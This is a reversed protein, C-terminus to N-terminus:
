PKRNGGRSIKDSKPTTEKPRLAVASLKRQAASAAESLPLALDAAVYRASGGIYSVGNIFSGGLKRATKPGLSAYNLQMLVGQTKILAVVAAIGLLMAMVPDKSGNASGVQLFLSGALLIIVVHIFLVFVTAIYTKLVSEAFDRFGPILWVLIVLPALVAGLYLVVIRSIYYILLIVTLIIFILFIILAPLSFVSINTILKILVTWPYVNGAGLRIANIMANSLEILGDLLYISSNILVFVLLTQPLLNKLDVEKLGFQEAGMVHFGILGIALVMLADAIGVSILWLHVVSPNGVLLPTKTTFYVLADIFPKAASQIIVGFLGAVAKVIVEVFGGSSPAPQIPSLAPLSTAASPPVAGGYTKNLIGSLLVAALVIVLGILSRLMLRKAAALRNANGASSIYNIGAWVLLFTCVIAALLGMGEITRAVFGGLGAAAIIGQGM